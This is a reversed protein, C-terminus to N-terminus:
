TTFSKCKFNTKNTKKRKKKFSLKLKWCDILYLKLLIKVNLNLIQFIMEVSNWNGVKIIFTVGLPFSKLKEDLCLALEFNNFWVFNFIREENNGDKVPTPLTSCCRSRSRFHSPRTPGEGPSPPWSTWCTRRGGCDSGSDSGSGSGARGWPPRPPRGKVCSSSGWHWCTFLFM